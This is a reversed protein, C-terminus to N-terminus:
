TREELGVLEERITTDLGCKGFCLRYRKRSASEDPKKEYFLEDICFFISLIKALNSLNDSFKKNLEFYGPKEQMAILQLLLVFERKWGRDAAQKVFAPIDRLLFLKQPANVGSGYIIHLTTDNKVRDYGVKIQVMAWSRSRPYEFPWRQFPPGDVATRTKDTVISKLNEPECLLLEGGDGIELVDQLEIITLDKESSKWGTNPFTFLCVDHHPLCMPSMDNEGCPFFVMPEIAKAYLYGMPFLNYLPEGTKGHMFPFLARRVEGVFDKWNIDYLHIEEDDEINGYQEFENEINVKRYGDSWERIAYTTNRDEYWVKSKEDDESEVLYKELLSYVRAGCKRRLFNRSVKRQKYAEWVSQWNLTNNTENLADDQLERITNNGRGVVFGLGSLWEVVTDYYIDVSCNLGKKEQIAVTVPRLRNKDLVKLSLVVKKLPKNCGNELYAAKKLRKQSDTTIYVGIQSDINMYTISKLEVEKIVKRMNCLSFALSPSKNSMPEFTYMERAEFAYPDNLLVSGFVERYLDLAWPYKSYVRLLGYRLLVSVVGSLLPTYATVSQDGDSIIPVRQHKGGHDIIFVIESNDPFPFYSVRCYDTYGKVKFQSSIRTEAKQIGKEARKQLEVFGIRELENLLDDKTYEDKKAEDFDPIYNERLPYETYARINRAQLWPILEELRARMGKDLWLRFIYDADSDKEQRKCDTGIAGADETIKELYHEILDKGLILLQLAGLEEVLSNGLGDSKVSMLIVKIADLPLEEGEELAKPLVINQQEFFKRYEEFFTLLLEPKIEHFLNHDTFHSISRKNQMPFHSKYARIRVVFRLFDFSLNTQEDSQLSKQSFYRFSKCAPPPSSYM